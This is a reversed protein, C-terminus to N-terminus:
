ESYNATSQVMFIRRYYGRPSFKFTDLLITNHKTHTLNILFSETHEKLFRWLMEGNEFFLICLSSFSSNLKTQNTLKCFGISTLSPLLNSWPSLCSTGLFEFSECQLASSSTSITYFKVLSWMPKMNREVHLWAKILLAYRIKWIFFPFTEPILIVWQDMLLKTWKPRFCLVPALPFCKGQICVLGFSWKYDLYIINYPFQWFYFILAFSWVLCLLCTFSWFLVM